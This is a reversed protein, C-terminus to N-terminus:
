PRMNLCSRVDLGENGSQKRLQANTAGEPFFQVVVNVLERAHRQTEAVVEGSVLDQEGIPGTVVPIPERYGAVQVLKVGLFFEPLKRGGRRKKHMLKVTGSVPDFDVILAVIDSKARIVSSGRERREVWGAHHPVLVSAGTARVVHWINRYVRNMDKASSEDLDGIVDALADLVILPQPTRELLKIFKQTGKEDSLDVPDDLYFGAPSPSPPLKLHQRNAEYMPQLDDIDEGIVWVVPRKKIPTSGWMGTELAHKIAMAISTRGEGSQAALTTVGISLLLDPVLVERRERKPLDSWPRPNLVDPDDTTM